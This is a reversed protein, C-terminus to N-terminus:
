PTERLFQAAKPNAQVTAVADRMARHRNVTTKLAELAVIDSEILDRTNGAFTHNQLARQKQQITKDIWKEQDAFTM